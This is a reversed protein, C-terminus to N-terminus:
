NYNYDKWKNSTMLNFSEKARKHCTVLTDTISHGTEKNVFRCYASKEDPVYTYGNLILENYEKTDTLQILREQKKEQLETVGLFRLMLPRLYKSRDELFGGNITPFVSFTKKDTSLLFGKNLFEGKVKYFYHDAINEATVETNVEPKDEAPKGNIKIFAGYIIYRYVAIIFEIQFHIFWVLMIPVFFLIRKLINIM